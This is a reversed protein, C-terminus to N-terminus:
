KVRLSYYKKEAADGWSFKGSERTKHVNVSGNKEATKLYYYVLRRSVFPHADKIKNYVQYGTLRSAELARLVDSMLEDNLKKAM